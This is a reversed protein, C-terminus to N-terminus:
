RDLLDSARAEIARFGYQRASSLAAELLPRARLLDRDKLSDAWELQSQALWYVDQMRGSVAVAQEFHADATEVRELAGALCGLHHAVPGYALWGIFVVQDKWPLLKEYVAQAGDTLQLRICLDGAFVLNGIWTLNYPPDVLWDPAKDGVCARAEDDRGLQCYYDLVRGYGPMHPGVGFYKEIADLAEQPRGQRRRIEEVVSAGAQLFGPEGLSEALQVVRNTMAEAEDLRGMRILRAVPRGAARCRLTPQGTADAAAVAEDTWRDAEDADGNEILATARCQAGFWRAVPDGLPDALDLLEASDALREEVADPVWLAYLRRCLVFALTEPDDLRRATALADDTLLRARPFDIPHLQAGLIALLRAREPSDTSGLAELAAEQITIREPMVTFVGAAMGEDNAAAARALRNTDGRQQGLRAAELLTDRWPGSAANRQAEGLGILLECRQEPDDALQVFELAHEYHGIAEEYALTDMALRAAQAAYGAAKALDDPSPGVTPTARYWHHALERLPAAGPRSIAELTEGVRRHLRVRQAAGLEDYLSHRVVNHSFSYCGPAAPKETVVGAQVAPALAAVVADEGTAATRALVALDFDRGIVSATNLLERTESPLARIRRGIVERVSEPLVIDKANVWRGSEQFILGSEYLHRFMEGMFYPNGDTERQVEHVFAVADADIAAGAAHEAFAVSEVDSLGRLALREVGPTRRLDALADVLPHDPGLDTDRYTAVLLLAAPKPSRVLHRLLLITPKAGWHLDDVVLVVPHHRGAEALLADVAEFLQYRETEPDLSSPGAALGSVRRGLEPVLKVLAAGHESVHAELVDLPAEAVYQRLAEVFPQYPVGVEDDCRGYLVLAGEDHARRAVEAALSTKGQGLEGALLEVRRSGTLVEKWASHMAALEQQRGVFGFPSEVALAPPLALPPEAGAPAWTVEYAVVPEPLGKLDLEGLHLFAHGGRGRAMARVVDAVLIQGGDAAACLRSAEVVPTGFCDGDEISVDGGSVGVRVVLPEAARRSRTDFAQQIAVAAAVADAASGFSAMVGDGLGKVVTGHCDAVAQALLQDHERRVVEALEEGLRARLETSGVLDTILITATQSSAM